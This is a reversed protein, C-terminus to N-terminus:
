QFPEIGLRAEAILGKNSFDGGHGRRMGGEDDSGDFSVGIDLLCTFNEDLGRIPEGGGASSKPIAIGESWFFYAERGFDSGEIERVEGGLGDANVEEL